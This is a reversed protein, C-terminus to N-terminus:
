LQGALSGIPCGGRAQRQVQMAVLEDFWRDLAAWSDLDDLLQDQAGIVADSTAVVVARVLDDRDDFYHYLQSRSAGTRGRIEDLTMAAAGREAIVEAAAQVIRDRTRRGKETTPTASM